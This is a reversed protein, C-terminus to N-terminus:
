DLAILSAEIEQLSPPSSSESLASRFEKARPQGMLTSRTAINLLSLPFSPLAPPNPPSSEGPCFLHLHCSM